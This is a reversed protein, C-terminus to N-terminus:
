PAPCDTGADSFLPFLLASSFLIRMACAKKLRPPSNTAPTFIKARRLKLPNRGIGIVHYPLKEASASDSLDGMMGMGIVAIRRHPM